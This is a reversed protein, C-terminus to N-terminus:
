LTRHSSVWGSVVMAGLLFTGVWTVPKKVTRRTLPDSEPNEILQEKEVRAKESMTMGKGLYRFDMFIYALGLFFAWAKLSLVLYLVKRYSQNETSDQLIGVVVDMIASGAHNFARLISLLIILTQDAPVSIDGPAGIFASPQGSNVNIVFSYRSRPKSRYLITM